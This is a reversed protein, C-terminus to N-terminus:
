EFAVESYRFNLLDFSFHASYDTVRSGDDMLAGAVIMGQAMYFNAASQLAARQLVAAIPIVLGLNFDYTLLNERMVDWPDGEFATITPAGLFTGGVLSYDPADVLDSFTFHDGSRELEVDFISMFRSLQGARAETFKFYGHLCDIRM